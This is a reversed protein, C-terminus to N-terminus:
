KDKRSLLKMTLADLDQSIKDVQKAQKRIRRENKKLQKFLHNIEKM